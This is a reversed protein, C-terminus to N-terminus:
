QEEPSEVRRSTIRERMELTMPVKLEGVSFLARYSHKLDMQCLFSNNLDWAGSGSVEGTFLLSAYAEAEDEQEGLMEDLAIVQEVDDLKGSISAEVKGRNLSVVEYTLPVVLPATRGLTMTRQIPQSDVLNRGALAFTHEVLDEILTPPVMAPLLPLAQLLEQLGEIAGALTFDERLNVVVPAGIIQRVQAFLPDTTPQDSDFNVEFERAQIHVQLRRLAMSIDVPGQITVTDEGDEVQVDWDMTQDLVVRLTAGPFEQEVTSQVHMTQRVVQGGPYQLQVAPPQGLLSAAMTLLFSLCYVCTRHCRAM